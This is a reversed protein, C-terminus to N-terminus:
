RMLEELIYDAQQTTSVGSSTTFNPIKGEALVGEVAAELGKAADEEGINDLMLAGSLIAAVPSVIGKNYDSPSSGHLPEFMSTGYPNICASAGVGMGGFLSATLDTLIDGFMNGTLIVGLDKPSNSVLWPGNLADIHLYNSKVDPFEEAAIKEFRPQWLEASVYKLVNSKFGLTVPMDKEKALEFAYRTVRDVEEATYDMIQQAATVEGADNRTVGGKGKYLGGTGERVVILEFGDPLDPHLKRIPADVGAYLKSPRLNVYQDLDFRMKLLIGQEVEGKKLDPHGVAGFAIADYDKLETIDRDTLLEGTEIYHEGGHPWDTKNLNFGYKDAVADLIRMEHPMIEKGIFDGPMVAINYEKGM